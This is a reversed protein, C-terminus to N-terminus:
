VIPHRGEIRVKNSPNSEVSLAIDFDTKVYEKFVRRFTDVADDERGQKVIVCDHVPYAVVGQEKLSLLTQTLINSEHFSLDNPFNFRKNDLCELAPYAQLCLDRIHTFEEELIKSDPSPKSKSPNGTGSLEMIVQKVKKRANTITPVQCVVAEYADEYVGSNSGTNMPKGTLASLLSLIMANVDVQVIPHNDITFSFRQNSKYETWGGYWRGGSRISANHFIRRASSYFENTIPNHLPHETWYTNMEKVPRYARSYARGFKKKVYTIGLKPAARKHKRRALKEEYEEKKNVPVYPLNAEIFTAEELTQNPLHKAVVWNPLGFGMLEVTTDPVYASAGIYEHEKLLKYVERVSQNSVHDFLSWFKLTKNDNGTWWDFATGKAKKATALYSALIIETKKNLRLGLTEAVSRVLGYAAAHHPLYSPKFYM